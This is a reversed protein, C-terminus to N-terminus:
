PVIHVSLAGLLMGAWALGAGILAYKIKLRVLRSM